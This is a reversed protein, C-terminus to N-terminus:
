TFYNGAYREAIRFAWRAMRPAFLTLVTLEALSRIVRSRVARNLADYTNKAKLKREARKRSDTVARATIGFEKAIQQTNKGASYGALTTLERETLKPEESRLKPRVMKELYIAMQHAVMNLEASERLTLTIRQTSWFCIAWRGTPCYLIDGVKHKHLLAWLWNPHHKAKRLYDALTFPEYARMAAQAPVTPGNTHVLSVFENWFKHPLSRHCFWTKGRVYAEGDYPDLTAFRWADMVHLKGTRAAVIKDATELIAHPDKLRALEATLIRTARALEVTM